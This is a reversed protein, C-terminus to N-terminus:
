WSFYYGIGLRSRFRAKDDKDFWGAGGTFVLHKTTRYEFFFMNIRSLKYTDSDEPVDDNWYTEVSYWTYGTAFGVAALNIQPKFHYKAEIEAGALGGSLALGFNKYITREYDIGLGHKLIQASFANKDFNIEQANITLFSSILIIVPLILKKM